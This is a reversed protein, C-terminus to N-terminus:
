QDHRKIDNMTDVCAIGPKIDSSPVLGQITLFLVTLQLLWDCVYQDHKQSTM